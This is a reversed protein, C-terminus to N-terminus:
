EHRDSRPTLTWGGLLALVAPSDPAQYLAAISTGEYLRLDAPEAEDYPEPDYTFSCPPSCVCREAHRVREVTRGELGPVVFVGPGDGYVMFDMRCAAEAERQAVKDADATARAQAATIGVASM